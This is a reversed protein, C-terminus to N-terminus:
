IKNLRTLLAEFALVYGQLGLGSIVADVVESTYTHQRFPERKYINSLHVEITPHHYTSLADRLAISTHGYAAPNIILGSTTERAEHIAEILYGEHNSQKFQLAVEERGLAVLSHNLLDELDQLTGSGYVNPERQGLLNLNPGNLVLITISDKVM